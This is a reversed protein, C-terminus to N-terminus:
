EGAPSWAKKLLNTEEKGKGGWSPEQRKTRGLLSIMKSAKEIRRPGTTEGVCGSVTMPLSPGPKGVKSAM